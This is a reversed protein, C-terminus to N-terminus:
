RFPDNPRYHPEDDGKEAEPGEEDKLEIWEAQVAELIQENVNQGPEPEFGDLQEVLERLRDFRITRPDQSPHAELLEDAIQEIDTWTFAM